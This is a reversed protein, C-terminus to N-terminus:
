AREGGSGMMLRELVADDAAWLDGPVGQGDTVYSIPKDVESVLSVVDALDAAEDCKALIFHDAALYASREIAERLVPLSASASLVLHVENPCAAQLLERTQRLQIENRQSAGPTDILILDKARHRHIAEAMETAASATELPVGVLRCYARLTEVAGVRLADATIVAVSRGERHTFEAALKVLTTTKGSGTPGVLAVILPPDGLRLGGTTATRSALERLAAPGHPVERGTAEAAAPASEAPRPTSLTAIQERLARLEARIEGLDGGGGPPEASDETLAAWVQVREKPSLGLFGPRTMQKTQLVVADEGLDAKVKQLAERMTDAEFRLMKM